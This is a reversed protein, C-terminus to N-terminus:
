LKKVEVDVELNLESAGANKVEVPVKARISDFLCIKSNDACYYVVADFVLMDEGLNAQVPIGFPFSVRPTDLAQKGETFKVITEDGSRWEVHFPADETFHFGKPLKYSLRITVKGQRVTKKPYVVVRGKFPKLTNEALKEAGSVILTSVQGLKTDIVRIAHNNTDAIYLKDDIAAVGAPEFFEAEALAGDKLGHKGTGAYSVSTKKIPDIIKIKSNYTDAVYLVGRHYVLGLPHQLRATKSDGDADGFVFLDEGILTEVKGAPNLDASRISSVESDAFYLKEADASIGSPQALAAQLLPGDVRAERGSGAYPRIESSQLDAEYLQHPGAMAIYLKNKHVLLDWPSNLPADTGTGRSGASRAKEGTGFLTLVKRTKLDAKRILHNETDAVYLFEGDLFIGQPHNFEADEFGGDKHGIKGNGVIDLVQGQLDTILIRNHNSDSIFLRRGSADAAIKGPFSLFQGPMKSAETTLKLPERNLEGKKDFYAATQSILGDFLEFIDEGSHVGIIRGRPNILVLTPWAQVAYEDWVEMDKDNVVPHQIEYRLVAQRISETGKENLFKASHVGIVVLEDPYKEELKKLDPIVHMCNICCYTWFDLLVIKGKLDKLSIRKETNLWELDTPFDPANVLGELRKDELIMPSKEERQAMAFVLGMGTSVLLILILLIRLKPVPVRAEM